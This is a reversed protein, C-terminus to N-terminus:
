YNLLLEVIIRTKSLDVLSGNIKRFWAEFKNTNDGIIYKKPVSYVTNCACIYNNASTNIQIMNSHMSSDIPQGTQLDFLRVLQVSISKQNRSQTFYEPLTIFLTNYIVSAFCACTRNCTAPNCGCTCTVECRNQLETNCVVITQVDSTLTDVVFNTEPM